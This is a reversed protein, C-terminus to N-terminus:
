WLYKNRFSIGTPYHHQDPLQFHITTNLWLTIWYQDSSPLIYIDPGPMSDRIHVRRNLYLVFTLLRLCQGGSHGVDSPRHVIGGTDVWQWSNLGAVEWPLQIMIILNLHILFSTSKPLLIERRKWSQISSGLPVSLNKHKNKCLYLPKLM